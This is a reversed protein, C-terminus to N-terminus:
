PCAERQMPRCQMPQRIADPWEGGEVVPWGCVYPLTEHVSLVPWREVWELTGPTEVFCEATGARANITDQIMMGTATATALTVLLLIVGTASSGMAEALRSAM